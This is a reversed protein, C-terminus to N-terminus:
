NLQRTTQETASGPFDVPGTSFGLSGREKAPEVFARPQGGQLQSQSGIGLSKLEASSALWKGLGAALEAAGWFFMWCIIFFSAVPPMGSSTLLTMILIGAPILVAGTITSRRGRYYDKILKATHDDDAPTKAPLRGTLAESVVGLNTGCRTCYKVDAQNNSGCSPCYM